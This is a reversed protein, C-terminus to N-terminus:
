REEYIVAWHNFREIWEPEPLRRSFGRRDENGEPWPDHYIVQREVNDYAVAALYHGPDKRCIQAARGKILHDVLELWSLAIDFQARAGFVLEVAWPYYQPVRNGPYMGVGRRIQRITAEHRPDNMALTLIDEAQPTYRGPVKATVDYGLMDLCMVATTPGCTELWHQGGMKKLLGEISNNTQTYYRSRDNWYKAGVIM